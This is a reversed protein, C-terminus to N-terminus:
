PLQEIDAADLLTATAPLSTMGPPDASGQNRQQWATFESSALSDTDYVFIGYHGPGGLVVDAVSWRGDPQLV